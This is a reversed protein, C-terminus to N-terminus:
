RVAQRELWRELEAVPVLRARGVYVVRLEPLVNEYFASRGLGIAEAAEEPRLALRPVRRKRREGSM